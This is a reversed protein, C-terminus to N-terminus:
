GASRIFRCILDFVRFRESDMTIVHGSGALRVIRKRPSAIRSFVFRANGGPVVPDEVPGLILAPCRVLSLDERVHRMMRVLEHLARTPLRSYCIERPLNPDRISGGIPPVTRILRRFALVLPIRWDDLYLAPSMAAVGALEPHHAALHLVQAGGMSIGAAFVRRCSNGLRAYAREVSMYWDQWTTSELHKWTRGHGAILPASVTIGRAALWKGLEKVTGPTSTLGHLLLCGTGGRRLFFPKAGKVRSLDCTLLGDGRRGYELSGKDPLLGGYSGRM